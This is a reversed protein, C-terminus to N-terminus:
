MIGSILTDGTGASQQSLVGLVCSLLARIEAPSADEAGAPIDIEMRLLATVPAQGALPVMGKRAVLKWVNRPVAQLRGTSPDVPALTKFSKPKWLTVTFPSSVSGTTVGAQTGGIATVAYQKGNSDPASDATLTYTPSTFGTQASGTVPSSPNFAM